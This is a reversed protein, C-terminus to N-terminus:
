PCTTFLYKIAKLFLKTKSREGDNIVSLTTFGQKTRRMLGWMLVLESGSWMIPCVVYSMLLVGRMRMTVVGVPQSPHIYGEENAQFVDLLCSVSLWHLYLRPWDYEVGAWCQELMPQLYRTQQSRSASAFPQLQGSKLYSTGATQMQMVVVIGPHIIQRAPARPHHNYCNPTRKGTEATQFFRFHKKGM